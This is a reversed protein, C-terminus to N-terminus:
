CSKRASLLKFTFRLEEWRAGPVHFTAPWLLNVVALRLIRQLVALPQLLVRTILFDFRRNFNYCCSVVGIDSKLLIHLGLTCCCSSSYPKIAECFCPLSARVNM